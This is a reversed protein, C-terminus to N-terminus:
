EEHPLAGRAALAARLLPPIDEIPYGRALRGSGGAELVRQARTLVALRRGLESEPGAHCARALATARALFGAATEGRALALHGQVCLLKGREVSGGFAALLAEGESLLREAEGPDAPYWIALEAAERLTSGEDPRTGVARQLTLAEAFLRKSEEWRGQDRRLAALNPLTNAESNRNGSERASALAENFLREAEDLRGQVRRLEALNALASGESRRNGSERHLALAATLLREAEGHQGRDFFLAALKELCAGEFRRDELARFVALAEHYKREAEAYRSRSRYLSALNNLCIAAARRDDAARLLALAAEFRQEAEAHRGLM